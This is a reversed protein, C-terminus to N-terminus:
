ALPESAEPACPCPRGTTSTATFASPPSSASCCIKLWTLCLCQKCMYYISHIYLFIYIYYIPQHSHRCLAALLRLRRLLLDEFLHPENQTFRLTCLRVFSSYYAREGQRAEIWRVCCGEDGRRGRDGSEGRGRHGCIRLERGGTVRCCTLPPTMSRTM